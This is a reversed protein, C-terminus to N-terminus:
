SVRPCVWNSRPVRDVRWRGLMIDQQLMPNPHERTVPYRPTQKPAIWQMAQAKENGVCVSNNIQRIELTAILATEM